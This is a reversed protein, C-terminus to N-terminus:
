RFENVHAAMSHLSDRLSTIRFDEESTIAVLSGPEKKTRSSKMSFESFVYLFFM